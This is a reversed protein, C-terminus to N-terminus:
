PLQKLKEYADQVNRKVDKESREGNHDSHANVWADVMKLMEFVKDERMTVVRHFNLRWFFKELIELREKQNIM